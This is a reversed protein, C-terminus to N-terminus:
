GYSYLTSPAFSSRESAPYGSPNLIVNEICDPLASSYPIDTAIDAEGTQLMMSRSNDEPVTIFKIEQTKPLGEKRYYPNAKLTIYEDHQWEDVYYPGCGMPWANDYTEGCKEFHARSQVGMNFLTLNALLSPNAYDLTLIITENDGEVSNIYSATYNWYSEATNKARDFTFKWDDITVDSGDSFKLGPTLHFTWTLGDESTDWTEALCPVIEGNEDVSVLGEIISHYMRTSEYDNGSTPDMDAPDRPRAIVLVGENESKTEVATQESEVAKTETDPLSGGSGGCATLAVMMFAITAALGQKKM